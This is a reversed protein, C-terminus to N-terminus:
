CFRAPATAAYEAFWKRKDRLTRGTTQSLGLLWTGPNQRHFATEQRGANCDMRMASLIVADSRGFRGQHLGACHGSTRSGEVRAGVPKGPVDLRGKIGTLGDDVAVMVEIVAGAQAIKQVVVQGVQATAM